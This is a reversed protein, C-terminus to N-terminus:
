RMKRMAQSRLAQQGCRREGSRAWDEAEDTLRHLVAEVSQRHKELSDRDLDAPVRLPPSMVVRARSYPRPVAFRDWTPVRWPRDYGVGFVVLPLQLRSALYVCGPAVRRRPGRPGDPTIALSMQRSAQVLERIAASGGRTTSGRVIRFGMHHAAEGLWDADRHRSILMAVRCHPRLYVPCPIYEHWFAYIVPPQFGPDVPDVTPDYLLKQYDLTSMWRRMLAYVGLGGLKTKLKKWSDM